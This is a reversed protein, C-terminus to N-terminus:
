MTSAMMKLEAFGEEDRTEDPVAPSSIVTGLELVLKEQYEKIGESSQVAAGLVLERLDGDARIRRINGSMLWFTMIPLELVERYSM